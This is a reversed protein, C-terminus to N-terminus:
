CVICPVVLWCGSSWPSAGFSQGVTAACVFLFTKQFCSSRRSILSEVEKRRAAAKTSRDEYKKVEKKSVEKKLSSCYESRIKFQVVFPKIVEVTCHLRVRTIDGCGPPGSSAVCISLSRSGRGRAMIGVVHTARATPRFAGM